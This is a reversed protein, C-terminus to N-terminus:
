PNSPTGPNGAAPINFAGMAQLIDLSGNGIVMNYPLSGDANASFSGNFGGITRHFPQTKSSPTQAAAIQYIATNLNGLRRNGLYQEILALVGAFAPASASTGIVGSIAGNFLLYDSTRYPGCPTAAIGSPCGGMNLSLDPTARMTTGTSVLGQWSPRTFHISPGGGSGWYGGTLTVGQNYPDNPLLPDGFAHEGLYLSASSGPIVTTVLNTGGVATVSPSTAPHSAGLQWSLGPTTNFYAVPPCQLAGNDGSAAIFTIGQANGQQFVHDYQDLTATLDTGNNYAATYLKECAGFSMSVIDAYNDSVIQNLGALLDSDSATPVVYLLISAGPAMSASQQIDLTAEISGDSSASFPAGGNVLIHAANPVPAGEASFYGIIDSPLVDGWMVIAITRGQGTLNKFSPADYAQRLDAASYPGIASAQSQPQASVQPEASFRLGSRMRHFGDFATVAAGGAVLEAPLRLKGDAALSRVGNPTVITRLHVGFLRNVADVTGTARLGHPASTVTLGAARLRATVAAVAAPNPGFRRAFEAPDIWAHFQPSAADQQAALLHMLGAPDRPPLAVDFAVPASSSPADAITNGHLQGTEAAGAASVSMLLLAALISRALPGAATTFKDM